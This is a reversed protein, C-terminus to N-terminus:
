FRTFHPRALACYRDEHVAKPAITMGIGDLNRMDRTEAM